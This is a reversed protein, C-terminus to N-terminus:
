PALTEAINKEVKVWEVVEISDGRAENIQTTSLDRRGFAYHSIAVYCLGTGIELANEVALLCNKLVPCSPMGAM